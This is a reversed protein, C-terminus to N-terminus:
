TSRRTRLYRWASMAPTTLVFSCYPASLQEPARAVACDRDDLDVRPKGRLEGIQVLFDVARIGILYEGVQGEAALRAPNCARAAVAGRGAEYKPLEVARDLDRGPPRFDM